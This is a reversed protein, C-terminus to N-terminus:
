LDAAPPLLVQDIAHLVGNSAEIDAETVMAENVMVGDDTVEIMVTSGEVTPVDGSELDDSLVEAPVVHYTLVQVLVDQNEPLLLADLAGDPLAEFAENTPAFVTFPGDSALVEELGAAEIAEVLTSFDDDDAAIDVITDGDAMEDDEAMPDEAAPDEEAPEEVATDPAPEVEATEPACAALAVIAGVGLFGSLLRKSLPTKRTTM